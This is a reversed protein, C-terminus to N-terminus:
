NTVTANFGEFSKCKTFLRLAENELHAAKVFQHDKAHHRVLSRLEDVKASAGRCAKVYGVSTRINGTRTPSHNFLRVVRFIYAALLAVLVLVFFAVGCYVIRRLFPRRKEAVKNRLEAIRDARRKAKAVFRQNEGNRQPEEDESDM